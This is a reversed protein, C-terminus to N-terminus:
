NRNKKNKKAIGRDIADKARTSVAGTQFSQAFQKKKNKPRVTGSKVKEPLDWCKCRAYLKGKKERLSYVMIDNDVCVDVCDCLPDGGENSLEVDRKKKGKKVRVDMDDYLREADVDRVQDCLPNPTPSDTPSDTPPNTPQHTPPNTPQPTPPNTPQPTPPKVIACLSNAIQVSFTYYCMSPEAASLIRTNAGFSYTIRARRPTGGCRDGNDFYEGLNSEYRVHNGLKYSVQGGFLEKQTISGGAGVRITYQYNRNNQQSVANITFTQGNLHAATVGSCDLQNADALGLLLLVFAYLM